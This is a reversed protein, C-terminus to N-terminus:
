TSTRITMNLSKMINLQTFQDYNVLIEGMISYKLLNLNIKNTYHELACKKKQRNVEKPYIGMLPIELTPLRAAEPIIEM